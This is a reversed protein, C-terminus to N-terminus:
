EAHGDLTFDSKKNRKANEAEEDDFGQYVIYFLAILPSIAFIFKAGNIVYQVPTLPEDDAM